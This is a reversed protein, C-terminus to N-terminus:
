PLMEAAKQLRAQDTHTYINATLTYDTHGLLEQIAKTDAGALDLLTAFTHKTTHPLRRIIKLQDQTPYSIFQRFYSDKVQQGSRIILYEGPQDM